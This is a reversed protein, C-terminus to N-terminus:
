SIRGEFRKDNKAKMAAQPIEGAYSEVYRRDLECSTCTSKKTLIFYFHLKEVDVM